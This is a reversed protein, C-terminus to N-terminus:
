TYTCGSSTQLNADGVFRSHKRTAHRPGPGFAGHPIGQRDGADAGRLAGHRQAPRLQRDQYRQLRERRAAALFANSRGLLHLNPRSQTKRVQQIDGAYSLNVQGRATFDDEKNLGRQKIHVMGLSFSRGAPFFFEGARPWTSGPRTARASAAARSTASAITRTGAM